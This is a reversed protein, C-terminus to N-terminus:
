DSNGDVKARVIKALIKRALPNRALLMMAEAEEHEGIDQLRYACSLYTTRHTFEKAEQERHELIQNADLSHYNQEALFSSVTPPYM